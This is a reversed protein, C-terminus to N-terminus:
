RTKTSKYGPQREVETLRVVAASALRHQDVPRTYHAVMELTKHGTVAAIEHASCGAEALATAARKRLGHVNLDNSLGIRALAAPFAQSLRPPHWPRGNPDTLITLATKVTAWQTLESQLRPHVPITLSVGTKQQVLRISTGDYDAWRMKCLDGRRQGTFLALVVVRRLPESLERMAIEAEEASWARLTGKVLGKLCRSAPNSEIWQRDIAWAFLASCTSIFAVATGQGREKAVADRVALVDRRKIDAVRVHAVPSLIRLHHSYSAQTAPKLKEWEPSRQWQRILSRLDDGTPPAEAEPRYPGYRYEKVSGDKLRRRIV